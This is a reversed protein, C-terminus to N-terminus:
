QVSVELGDQLSYAKETVVLDGETLGSVIEVRDDHLIGAKVLRKAVKTGELVFASFVGDEELVAARPVTLTALHRQSPFTLRALMGPRFEGTPNALKVRMVVTQNDPNTSGAIAELPLMLPAHPYDAFSVRMRGARQVTLLYRVPLDGRVDLESLDGIHVIQEGKQLVDGTHHLVELVVGDIPCYLPMAKIQEALIPRLEASVQDQVQLLAEREAPVVSGVLEGKRVRDGLLLSFDMLRGDFQSGLFAEQRLATTGFISLTDVMDARTVPATAVKIRTDPKTDHNEAHSACGVIGLSALGFAALQFFRASM